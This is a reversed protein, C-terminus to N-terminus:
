RKTQDNGDADESEKRHAPCFGSEDGGTSRACRRGRRTGPGHRNIGACRARKRKLRRSEASQHMYCYPPTWTAKKCQSVGDSYECQVAALPEYTEEVKMAALDGASLVLVGILHRLEHAGVKVLGGGLREVQLAPPDILVHVRLGPCNPVEITMVIRTM